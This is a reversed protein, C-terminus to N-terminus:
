VGKERADLYSRIERKASLDKLYSNILDLGRQQRLAATFEAGKKDFGKDSGGNAARYEERAEEPAVKAASFLVQKLKNSLMARRQEAEFREPSSHFAARVQQFYLQQDFKGDRQFLPVGRLALSIEDDGVKLGMDEAASALLEDVIMDQLVLKKVENQREESVDGQARLRDLIGNVRTRFSIYPIKASGVVAVAESRDAGTFFYGGLGVFIGILFVLAMSLILGQRYRRLFGIM